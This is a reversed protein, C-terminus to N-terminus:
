TRVGAKTELPWSLVWNLSALSAPVQVTKTVLGPPWVEFVHLKETVDEAGDILPRDGADYGADLPSWAINILPLLKWLPAVIM